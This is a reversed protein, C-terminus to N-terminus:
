FRSILFILNKRMSTDICSQFMAKLHENNDCKPLMSLLYNFYTMPLGQMFLNLILLEFKSKFIMFITCIGVLGMTFNVVLIDSFDNLNLEPNNTKFIVLAAVSGALQIGAFGIVLSKLFGLFNRSAM